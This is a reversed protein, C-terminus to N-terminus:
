ECRRIAIRRSGLTGDCNGRSAALDVLIAAAPELAASALPEVTAVLRYGRRPVTAIYRAEAGDDGLERRLQAIAQYVSSQTVMVGPWVRGLLDDASWVEGPREALVCLLRMTRPELKVVREGSRIEDLASDVQWEGLRFRKPAAAADM